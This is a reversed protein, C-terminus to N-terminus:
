TITTRLLIYYIYIYTKVGALPKLSIDVRHTYTHVLTHAYQM